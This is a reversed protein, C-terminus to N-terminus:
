EGNRYDVFGFRQYLNGASRMPAPVVTNDDSPRNCSTKKLRQM